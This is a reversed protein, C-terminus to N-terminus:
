EINYDNVGPYDNLQAQASERMNKEENGKLQARNLLNRKFAAYNDSISQEKGKLHGGNNNNNEAEEKPNVNADVPQEVPPSPSVPVKAKEHEMRAIFNKNHKNDLKGKAAYKQFEKKKNKFPELQPGYPKDVVDPHPSPHPHHLDDDEDHDEDEEDHHHIDEFMDHQYENKVNWDSIFHIDITQSTSLNCSNTSM